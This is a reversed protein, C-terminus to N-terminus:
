CTSIAPCPREPTQTANPPAGWAMNDAGVAAVGHRDAWLTGSKGVGVAQLYAAEDQWLTGFGTRVLLVDGARLEVGDAAACAQVQNGTISHRAPLRLQGKWGAVDLLVGRGLLPPVTEIGLQTFGALTEAGEVAV